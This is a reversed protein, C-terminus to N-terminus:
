PVDFVEGIERYAQGSLHLGDAGTYGKTEILRDSCIQAIARILRRTAEPRAPLIWYVRRAHVGVRLRVLNAATQRDAIGDNVGLSILVTDANVRMTHAAAYVSSTIGMKTDAVCDHRYLAVGAALSDGLIACAIM